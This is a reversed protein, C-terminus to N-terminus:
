IRQPWTHLRRALVIDPRFERAREIALDGNAASEIAVDEGAFTLSVVKQITVSDDAVLLKKPMIPNM